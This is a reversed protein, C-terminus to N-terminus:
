ASCSAPGVRHRGRRRSLLRARRSRARDAIDGAALAPAFRYAGNALRAHNWPPMVFALRSAGAGGRAVGRTALPPRAPGGRCSWRLGGPSSCALWCRSRDVRGAAVAAPRAASDPHLQRALAGAIAGATNTPTSARGRGGADEGAGGDDRHALPFTAGLAITMPLQM